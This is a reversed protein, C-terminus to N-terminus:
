EGEAAAVGIGRCPHRRKRERAGRAIRAPQRKERDPEADVDDEADTRDRNAGVAGTDGPLRMDASEEGAQDQKRPEIRNRAADGISCLRRRLICRVAASRRKRSLTIEDMMAMTILCPM